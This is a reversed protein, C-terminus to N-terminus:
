RQLSPVRKETWCLLSPKPSLESSHEDQGCADKSLVGKMQRYLINLGTLTNKYCAWDFPVDLRRHSREFM